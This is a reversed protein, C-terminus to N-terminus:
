DTYGGNASGSLVSRDGPKIETTMPNDSQQQVTEFYFVVPKQIEEIFGYRKAIKYQTSDRNLSKV